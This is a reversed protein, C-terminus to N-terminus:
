IVERRRLETMLSSTARILDDNIIVFDFVPLPGNPFQVIPNLRVYEAKERQFSLREAITEPAERGRRLLRRSLERTEEEFSGGTALLGISLLREGFEERLRGAGAPGSYVSLVSVKGASAAAEMEDISTAYFVKGELQRNVMWRGSGTISEFQSATVSRYSPDFDASVARTTLTSVRHGRDGLKSLVASLLSDKGVGYPGSFNIFDIIRPM